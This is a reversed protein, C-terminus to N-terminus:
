IDDILESIMDLSRNFDEFIPEIDTGISDGNHIFEVNIGLKEGGYKMMSIFDPSNSYFKCVEDLDSNLSKWAKEVEQVPHLQSGCKDTYKEGTYVIIKKM